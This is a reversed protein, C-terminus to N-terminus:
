VEYKYLVSVFHDGTIDTTCTLEVGAATEFLFEGAPAESAVGGGDNPYVEWVVDATDLFSVEGAVASMVYVAAVKVKYGSKAAVLAGAAWAATRDAKGQVLGGGYSSSM